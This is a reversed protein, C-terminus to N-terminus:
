PDAIAYINGADDCFYLVGPGIASESDVNNSVLGEEEGFVWKQTGNPNVAFMHRRDDGAYITGESDVSPTSNRSGHKTSAFTWELAMTAGNMSRIGSSSNANTIVHDNGDSDRWVAVDSGLDSGGNGNVESIGQNGVDVVRHVRSGFTQYVVGDLNLAVSADVDQNEVIYTWAISGNPEVAFTAHNSAGFHVRGTTPSTAVHAPVFQSNPVGISWLVSNNADLKYAFNFGVTYIDGNADVIPSGTIVDNPDTSGPFATHWLQEGDKNLLVIGNGSPVVITGGERLTPSASNSMAHPLTAEWISTGDSAKLKYMTNQSGVIIINGDGDILPSTQMEGTSIDRVWQLTNTQPGVFDPSHGSRRTDYKSTPWGVTAVGCGEDYRGDCNDDIGNCIEAEGPNASEEGDNCDGGDFATFDGTPGCLCTQTLTVGYDDNDIDEYHDVCGVANAEDAVDNCNEDKGDGGWAASQAPNVAPDDDKCDVAQNARYLGDEECLCRSSGVGWGDGDVDTYFPQCGTSDEEDVGDTCNDDTGNCFEEVGPRILHTSDNCDGGVTARYAGSPACLCKNDLDLGFLDNDQDRLYVTCMGDDEEDTISNCNNDLDDCVENADPNICRHEGCNIRLETSDEDDGWPPSRLCAPPMDLMSSAPSAD